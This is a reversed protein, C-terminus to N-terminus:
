PVITLTRIADSNLIFEAYRFDTVMSLMVLDDPVETFRSTLGAKLLDCFEQVEPLLDEREFRTVTVVREGQKNEHSVKEEVGIEEVGIVEFM